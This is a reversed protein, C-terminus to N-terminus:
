GLHEDWRCGMVWAHLLGLFAGDARLPLSSLRGPHDALGCASPGHGTGVMCVPQSPCDPHEDWVGMLGVPCFAYTLEPGSLQAELSGM